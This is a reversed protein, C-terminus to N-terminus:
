SNIDFNVRGQRLTLNTLFRFVVDVIQVSIERLYNNLERSLNTIIQIPGALQTM